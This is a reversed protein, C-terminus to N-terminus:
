PGDDASVRAILVVYQGKCVDCTFKHGDRIGELCKLEKWAGCPCFIECVDPEEDQLAPLRDYADMPFSM